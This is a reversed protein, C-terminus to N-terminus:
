TLRGNKQHNVTNRSIIRNLSNLKKGNLGSESLIKMKVKIITDAIKADVSERKPTKKALEKQRDHDSQKEGEGRAADMDKGAQDREMDM